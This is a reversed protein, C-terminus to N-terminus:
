WGLGLSAHYAALGNIRRVTRFPLSRLLPMGNWQEEMKTIVIEAMQLSDKKPVKKVWVSLLSQCQNNNYSLTYTLVINDGGESADVNVCLPADALEVPFCFAQRVEQLGRFTCKPDQWTVGDALKVTLGRSQLSLDKNKNHSHEYRYIRTLYSKVAEEYQCKPTAESAHSNFSPTGGFPVLQSRAVSAVSLGIQVGVVGNVGSVLGRALWHRRPM